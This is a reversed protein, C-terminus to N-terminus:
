TGRFPSSTRRQLVTAPRLVHTVRRHLPGRRRPLNKTHLPGLPRGEAVSPGEKLEAKLLRSNSSCKSMVDGGRQTKRVRAPQHTRRRGRDFKAPNGMTATRRAVYGFFIRSPNADRRYNTRRGADRPADRSGSSITM